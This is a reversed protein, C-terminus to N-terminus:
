CYINVNGGKATPALKVTKQTRQHEKAIEEPTLISVSFGNNQNYNLKLGAAFSVSYNEGKPAAFEEKEHSFETLYKSNNSYKRAALRLPDKAMGNAKMMCGGPTGKM